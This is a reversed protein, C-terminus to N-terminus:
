FMPFLVVSFRSICSVCLLDYWWVFRMLWVGGPWWMNDGCLGGQRAAHAVILYIATKDRWMCMLLKKLKDRCMCLGLIYIYIYWCYCYYSLFRTCVGWCDSWCTWTHWFWLFVVCWCNEDLWWSVFRGICHVLIILLSFRIPTWCIVYIWSIRITIIECIGLKALNLFYFGIVHDRLMSCSNLYDDLTFIRLYLVKWWFLIIHAIVPRIRDHVVCIVM